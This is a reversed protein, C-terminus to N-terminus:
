VIFLRHQGDPDERPNIKAFTRYKRELILGSGVFFYRDYIGPGSTEIIASM